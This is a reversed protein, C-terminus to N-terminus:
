DSDPIPETWVTVPCHVLCITQSKEPSNEGYNVQTEVVYQGRVEACTGDSRDKCVNGHRM